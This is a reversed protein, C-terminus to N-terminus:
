ERPRLGLLLYGRFNSSTTLEQEMPKRYKPTVVHIFENFLINKLSILNQSQPTDFKLMVAFCNGERHYDIKLRKVNVQVRAAYTQIAGKYRKEDEKEAAPPYFEARPRLYIPVIPLSRKFDDFMRNEANYVDMMNYAVFFIGSAIALYLIIKIFLKTGKAEMDYDKGSKSLSSSITRANGYKDLRSRMTELM